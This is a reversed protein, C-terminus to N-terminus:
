SLVLGDGAVWGDYGNGDIVCVTGPRDPLLLFAGITLRDWAGITVGATAAQELVRDFARWPLPSGSELSRRLMDAAERCAADERSLALMVREAAADLDLDVEEVEEELRRIETTAEMMADGTASGIRRYLDAREHQEFLIGLERVVDAPEDTCHLMTMVRNPALVARRVHRSSQLEPHAPGKLTALRVTTPLDAGSARDRLVLLLSDGKTYLEEALAVRDLTARNWQFRWIENITHRTYRVRAAALPVFDNRLLFSLIGGGKRGGFAEPKLTALAVRQLAREADGGLVCRADAWSQRFYTELGYWKRKEDITTLASWPDPPVEPSSEGRPAPSILESAAEIM